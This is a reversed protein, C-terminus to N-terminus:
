FDGGASVAAIWRTQITAANLPNKAAQAALSKSRKEKGREEQM